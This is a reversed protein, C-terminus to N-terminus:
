GSKRAAQVSLGQLILDPILRPRLRPSLRRLLKQVQLAGGGTLILQPVADGSWRAAKAAQITLAAIAQWAGTEIAARTDRAALTALPKPIRREARRQIDATGRLLSRVMLEPGPVIVGGIHRGGAQLWDVTVATGISVICVPAADFLEHAAILALWRDVGLRQPKAYANRVSEYQRVSRVFVPARCGAKRAARKLSASVTTGAVNSIWVQAQPAVRSFIQAAVQALTARTWVASQMRGLRQDRFTTWKLRSNGADILVSNM